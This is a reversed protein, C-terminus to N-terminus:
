SQVKWDTINWLPDFATPAIGLIGRSVVFDNPAFLWIYPQAEQLLVDLERYYSAREEVRCSPVQNAIQMLDEIEEDYFSGLNGNGLVANDALQSLYRSPDPDILGDITTLYADITQSGSAGGNIQTAIGVAFLQRAILQVTIALMEDSTDYELRINLSVGEQAYLCDVCERLGDNGVDRWGAVTLLRRAEGVDQAIPQLDANYGWSSPNQFSALPTGYGLLAVDILEHVDIAKQMAQRVRIDGFFPHHGQERLNGDKDFASLPNSPNATNLIMVVQRRSAFEDVRVRADQVIDARRNLPPNVLLNTEGAVFQQVLDNQPSDFSPYVSVYATQKDPTLLRLDLNPRIAEFEFRNSSISLGMQDLVTFRSLSYEERLFANLRTLMDGSFDFGQVIAKFNPDYVHSPVIPLNIRSPVSCDARYFQVELTQEDLVRLAQIDRSYVDFFAADALVSYFVDYATVRKGDSWQVDDRLTLTQIPASPDFVSTVLGSSNDDTRIIAGNQADTAYLTPYLLATLRECITEFCAYPNFGSDGGRWGGERVVGVGQAQTTVSLLGVIIILIWGMKPRKM